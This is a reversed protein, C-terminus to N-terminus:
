KEPPPAPINGPAKIGDDKKRPGLLDSINIGHRRLRAFAVYISGATAGPITGRVGAKGDHVFVSVTLPDDKLGGVIQDPTINEGLIDGSFMSLVELLQASILVLTGPQPADFAAKLEPAVPADSLSLDIMRKISEDVNIGAGAIWQGKVITSALYGNEDHTM